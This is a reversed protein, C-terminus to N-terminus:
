STVILLSLLNMEIIKLEKTVREAAIKNKGYRFAFGDATLKQLLIRDDEKTSSFIKKNKDIKFDMEIHCSDILKYTNTVIFPYQRFTLRSIYNKRLYKFWM